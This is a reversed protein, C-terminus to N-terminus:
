DGLQTFLGFTLQVYFIITLQLGITEQKDYIQSTHMLKWWMEENQKNTVPPRGSNRWLKRRVSQQSLCAGRPGWWRPFFSNNSGQQGWEGLFCQVHQTAHYDASPELWTGLFPELSHPLKPVSSPTLAATQTVNQGFSVKGNYKNRFVTSYFETWKRVIVVM